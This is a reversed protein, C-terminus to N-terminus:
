FKLRRYRHAATILEGEDYIVLFSDLSKELKRYQDRGLARAARKHASRNLFFVDAGGRRCTEGYAILADIAASKISRQQCRTQAHASQM